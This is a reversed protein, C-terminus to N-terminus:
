LVLADLEKEFDKNYSKIMAKHTGNLVVTRNLRRILRYDKFDEILNRLEKIM